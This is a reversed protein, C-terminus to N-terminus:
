KQPNILSDMYESRRAQIELLDASLATIVDDLKMPYCQNMDAIFEPSMAYCYPYDNVYIVTHNKKMERVLAIVKKARQKATDPMIEVKPIHGWVIIPQQKM